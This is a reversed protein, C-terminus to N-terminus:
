TATNARVGDCVIRRANASNAAAIRTAGVNTAELRPAVVAAAAEVGASAKLPLEWYTVNPWADPSLAALKVRSAHTLQVPPPTPVLVPNPPIAFAIGTMVLPRASTSVGAFRLM